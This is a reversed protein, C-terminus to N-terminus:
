CITCIYLETAYYINQSDQCINRNQFYAIIRRLQLMIGEEKFVKQPVICMFEYIAYASQKLVCVGQQDASSKQFTLNSFDLQVFKIKQRNWVHNKCAVSATFIWDLIILFFGTRGDQNKLSFKKFILHLNIPPTYKVGTLM